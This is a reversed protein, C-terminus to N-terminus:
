YNGDHAPIGAAELLTPVLDNVHTFTKSLQGGVQGPAGAIILPVRLGGESGFYKYGSLPSVTASAWSSFHRFSQAALLRKIPVGPLKPVTAVSKAPLAQRIAPYASYFDRHLKLLRM